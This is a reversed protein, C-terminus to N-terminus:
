KSRQAAMAAIFEAAVGPKPRDDEANGVALADMIVFLSAAAHALHSQSDDPDLTEGDQYSMLHRMAADIYTSVNVRSTRWNYAGYKEAGRRMVEGVQLLPPSPIVSLAPTKLNGFAAKPNEAPQPTENLLKLSSGVWRASTARDQPDDFKLDYPGGDQHEGHVGRITARAGSLIYTSKPTVRDGIKFTPTQKTESGM